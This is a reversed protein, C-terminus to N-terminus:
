NFRSIREFLVTSYDRMHGCQRQLANREIDSLCEFGPAVIFAGLRSLKEDLASKEDIVRQQWDQM